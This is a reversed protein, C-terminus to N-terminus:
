ACVSFLTVQSQNWHCKLTTKLSTSRFWLKAALRKKKKIKSDNQRNANFLCTSNSTSTIKCSILESHRQECKTISKSDCEINYRFKFFICAFQFSLYTSLFNSFILHFINMYHRATSQLSEPLILQKIVIYIHLLWPYTEHMFLLVDCLSTM